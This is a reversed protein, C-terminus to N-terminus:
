FILSKPTAFSAWFGKLIGGQVFGREVHAKDNIKVAKQRNEAERAEEEFHEFGLLYQPKATNRAHCCHASTPGCVSAFVDSFAEWFGELIVDM